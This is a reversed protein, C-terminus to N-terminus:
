GGVEYGSVELSVDVGHVRTFKTRADGNRDVSLEEAFVRLLRQVEAKPLKVICVIKVDLDAPRTEHLSLCLNELGMEREFRLFSGFLPHANHPHQHQHQHHHQHQLQHEHAPQPPPHPHPHPHPHPNQSITTTNAALHQALPSPNPPPNNVQGHPHPMPFPAQPLQPAQGTQAFQAFPMPPPPPPAPMQTGPPNAFVNAHGMALHVQHQLVQIQNQVQQQLATMQGGLAQQMAQVQAALGVPLNPGGGAGLQGIMGPTGMTGCRLFIWLSKLKPLDAQMSREALTSGLYSTWLKVDKERIRLYVSTINESFPSSIVRFINCDSPHTFLFKNLSYLIPTAEEHVQKNATLLGLAVNHKPSSPAPWWFPFPSVLAFTYIQSRLERPLALISFTPNTPATQLSAAANHSAPRPRAPTLPPADNMTTDSSDSSGTSSRSRSRPTSTRSAM